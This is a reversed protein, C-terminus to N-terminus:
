GTQTCITQMHAGCSCHNTKRIMMKTIIRRFILQFDRQWIESISEMWHLATTNRIDWSLSGADVRRGNCPFTRSRRIRGSNYNRQMCPYRRYASRYTQFTTGSVADDFGRVLPIKRNLVKHWFLGFMKHDLQQKQLGYFHYLGAQAAWCLFITSTVHSETWDMIETLEKWYDVEEFAM